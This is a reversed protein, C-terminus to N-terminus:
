AVLKLVPRGSATRVEVSAIDQRSTATAAALRMTKGPLARWTAVQEVRGDRTHVFMAYTQQVPPTGYEGGGSYSCTLDLRTGWLVGTLALNASLPVHGIPAMVQGAPTLSAGPSAPVASPTRDSSFEGTVGLAGVAVAVAAATAAGASVYWRRRQARRVHAVLAPLLTEPLPEAVPPSTLVDPDVRALLGPLGALERVSRACEECGALHLEFEKREVPSLAGLVYSGDHHAFDCSM